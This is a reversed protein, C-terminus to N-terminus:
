RETPNTILHHIRHLIFRVGNKSLRFRALFEEDSWKVFHNSRRLFHQPQRIIREQQVINVLDLFDEDETINDGDSEM